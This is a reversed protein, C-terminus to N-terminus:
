GFRKMWRVNFEMPDVPELTDMLIDPYESQLPKLVRCVERYSEPVFGAERDGLQPTAGAQIILGSTTDHVAVHEDFSARVADRRGIRALLSDSVITFWNVGEIGEELYDIHTTPDDIELGLFREVLPYLKPEVVQAVSADM